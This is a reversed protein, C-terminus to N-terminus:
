WTVSLSSQFLMSRDTYDTEPMPTATRCSAGRCVVAPDSGHPALGLRWGLFWGIRRPFGIPEQLRHDLAVGFGAQGEVRKSDQPVVRMAEGAGPPYWHNWAVAAGGEVYFSLLSNAGVWESGIRIVDYRAVIGLREADGVHARSPGNPNLSLYDLEAEIALRGFRQGIATTLGIASVDVVEGYLFGVATGVRATTGRTVHPAFPNDVWDDHTSGDHAPEAWAIGRGTGGLCVVALLVWRFSKVNVEVREARRIMICIM